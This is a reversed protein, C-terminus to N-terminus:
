RSYLNHKIEKLIAVDTVTCRNNEDPWRNDVLCNKGDQRLSANQRDRIGKGIRVDGAM